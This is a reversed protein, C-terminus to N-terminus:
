VAAAGHKGNRRTGALALRSTHWGRSRRGRRRARPSAPCTTRISGPTGAREAIRQPDGRRQAPAFERRQEAGRERRPLPADRHQEVAKDAGGGHRRERLEVPIAEGVRERRMHRGFGAVADQKVLKAEGRQEIEAHPEAFGRARREGGQQHPGGEGAV